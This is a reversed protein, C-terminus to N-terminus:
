VMLYSILCIHQIVFFPTANQHTVNLQAANQPTTVHQNQDISVAFMNVHSQHSKVNYMYSLTFNPCQKNVTLCYSDKDDNDDDDNPISYNVYLQMFSM